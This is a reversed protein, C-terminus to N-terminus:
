RLLSEACDTGLPHIVALAETLSSCARSVSSDSCGAVAWTDNHGIVLWSATEAGKQFVGIVTGTVAHPWPRSTLDEVLDIGIARAERLWEGLYQRDVQSLRGFTQSTDSPTEQLVSPEVICQVLHHQGPLRATAHLHRALHAGTDVTPVSGDSM